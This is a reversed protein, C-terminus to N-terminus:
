KRLQLMVGAVSDGTSVPEIYVIRWEASETPLIIVDSDQKFGLFGAGEIQLQPVFVKIDGRRINTGDIENLRYQEPPATKLSYIAVAESEAGTIVNYARTERRVTTPSDVLAEVIANAAAKMGDDLAGM